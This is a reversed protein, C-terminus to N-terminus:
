VKEGKLDNFVSLDDVTIAPRSDSELVVTPKGHPRTIYPGLIENFQKKGLLSTMATLGLITHAYPDYGAKKVAEAAAVEDTYRRVSRGEVLKLGEVNGGGLLRSLTYGKVDNAWQVLEESKTIVDRLEEDALLEPQKFEYAALALNDEARRRCSAKVKCFRCWPGSTAEGEGNFALQARPRLYNEGWDFLESAKMTSSSINGLRPQFITMIVEETDYLNSFCDLAGLAYLRMQTNGEASVPVGVGYKFDTIFLKGRSLIISDATGFCEPAFRSIDLLQEVMVTPNRGAEAEKLYLGYVYSAYDTACDEMEQNYYELHERPDSVDKGMMKNLYYECLEHAETGEQAFVSDQAPLNEALRVSPPCELWMGSSSPSLVAHSREEMM